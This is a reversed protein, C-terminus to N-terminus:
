LYFHECLVFCTLMCVSVYERFCVSFPRGFIAYIPRNIKIRLLLILLPYWRRPVQSSLNLYTISLFNLYPVPQPGKVVPQTPYVDTTGDKKEVLFFPARDM